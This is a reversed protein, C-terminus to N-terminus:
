LLLSEKILYLSLFKLPSTSHQYHTHKPESLSSIVDSSLESCGALEDKVFSSIFKEQTVIAEDQSKSCSFCECQCNDSFDDLTSCCTEAHTKGHHKGYNEHNSCCMCQTGIAYSLSTVLWIFIVAGVKFSSRIYTSM